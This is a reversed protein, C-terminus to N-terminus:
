PLGTPSLMSFYWEWLKWGGFMWAVAGMALFPGFPLQRGFGIRGILAAVIAFLSAGFLSFLVGTWGFFAGIMGLLHVDGMGMAERPIVASTATGDVSKVDELRRVTGDPLEIEFERMILKGAGVSEGNVRIDTAEVILRDTKRFFIDWWAVEEDDIVFLMPDMEGVPERIMWEVPTDFNMARKGFAMKGLQVVAWLGIFGAVWGVIGDLLGDLWNGQEMGLASIQPWLMCAVLGVASGAWTLSVPIILHEADIFTIAVLLAMLVWLPGVVIPPFMIWVALFFLATLLEVAFYRFAIPAGCDACKGRLLLWSLLPINRRMPIPTKCKPCFSRKPENVSLGLPVRYIVVNLFSGICAGIFFAPIWWLWHDLTPYFLAGGNM